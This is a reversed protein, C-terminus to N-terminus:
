EAAADVLHDALRQTAGKGAFAFSAGFPAAFPAAFPPAARRLYGVSLGLKLQGQYKYRYLVQSGREDMSYVVVNM